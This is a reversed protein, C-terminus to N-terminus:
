VGSRMLRAKEREWDRQKETERKDHEKKGKALGIECKVRGKTYHLDLPVLTYGRQEVKGILRKIQTAHMLLKRTRVPDPRIHTSASLLPSIHAGILFLEANRIVVYGERIQSRGARIAKVEWGELVLGAEYRDEIFYDFLAKKNNSISM